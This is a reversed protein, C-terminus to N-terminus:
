KERLEVRLSKINTFKDIVNYTINAIICMLSASMFLVFYIMFLPLTLIFILMSKFNTAEKLWHKTIFNGEKM